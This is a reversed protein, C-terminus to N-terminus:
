FNPSLSTTLCLAILIFLSRESNKGSSIPFLDSLRGPGDAIYFTLHKTLGDMTRFSRLRNPFEDKSSKLASFLKM